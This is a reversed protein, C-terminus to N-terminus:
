TGAIRWNSKLRLQVITDLTVTQQRYTVSIERLSFALM